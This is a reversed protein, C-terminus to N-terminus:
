NSKENNIKNNIKNQNKNNSNEQEDKYGLFSLIKPYFFIILGISFIAYIIGSYTVDTRFLKITIYFNVLLLVMLLLLKFLKKNM